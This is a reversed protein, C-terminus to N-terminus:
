FFLHEERFFALDYKPWITMKSEKGVFGKVGFGLVPRAARFSRVRARSGGLVGVSM